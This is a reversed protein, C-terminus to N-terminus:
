VGSRRIGPSTKKSDIRSAMVSAQLIAKMEAHDDVMEVLEPWDNRAGHELLLKFADVNKSRVAWKLARGDHEDLDLRGTELLALVDENRHNVIHDTLRKLSADLDELINETSKFVVHDAEVHVAYGICVDPRLNEHQAIYQFQIPPLDYNIQLAQIMGIVFDGNFNQADKVCIGYKEEWYMPTDPFAGAWETAYARLKELAAPRLMWGQAKFKSEIDFVFDEILIDEDVHDEEDADQNEYARELFQSTRGFLYLAPAIEGPQLLIDVAGKSFPNM